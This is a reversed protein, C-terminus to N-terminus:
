KPFDSYKGSLPQVKSKRSTSKIQGDPLRTRRNFRRPGENDDDACTSTATAML